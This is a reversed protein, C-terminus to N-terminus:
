IIKRYDDPQKTDTNTLILIEGRDETNLFEYDYIITNDRNPWYLILQGDKIKWEFPGDDDFGTGNSNFTIKQNLLTASEWTGVFKKKDDSNDSCGSLGVFLLLVAIGITLIRNNM